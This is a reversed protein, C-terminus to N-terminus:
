VRELTYFSNETEILYHKGKKTVKLVPSTKYWGDESAGILWAYKKYTCITYLGEYLCVAEDPITPNKNKAANKILNYCNNDIKTLGSKKAAVENYGELGETHPIKTVVKKKTKQKRKM